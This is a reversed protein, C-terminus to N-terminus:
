APRASAASEGLDLGPTPVDPTRSLVVALMV